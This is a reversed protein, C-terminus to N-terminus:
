AMAPQRAAPEVLPASTLAAREHALGLADAIESVVPVGRLRKGLDALVSQDAQQWICVIIDVGPKRRRVAISGARLHLTSLPEVFSLFVLATEDIETESVCAADNWSHIQTALGHRSLVQALMAAAAPDLMHSGFFIKIPTQTRWAPRLKEAVLVQREIPDPGIRELAAAAEADDGARDTADIDDLADVVKATTAVLTQLREEAINGRVIDIHARRIAPLAIADYYTSLTRKQLFREAQATAEHPDGALMRQYFIEHPQLPPRDSLLTDIFSLSPIHRGIVVLCVTLPASLVLGVPGWLFTWLMAAIVLAIPAVGTSRGYLMPEIVHGAIPEIVAFLAITWFFSTWTPDYAFAIILPPIVGLVAGVYPVYRLVGALVGWLFPSPLGILWLGLGIVIGFGANLLLQAFLMRGVRKGADDIAETTRQLDDTGALKILRNRLDKREALMFGSLLLVAAITILPALLPEAYGTLRALASGGETQVVVVQPTAGPEPKELEGVIDRIVETARAFPGGPQLTEAASKMKASISARYNPIEAALDSIQNFTALGVAGLIGVAIALGAAVAVPRALGVREFANVLPSLTFSLLVALAIPILIVKAGILIIALTVIIVLAAVVTFLPLARRLNQNALYDM